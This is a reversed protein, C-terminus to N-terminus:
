TSAQARGRPHARGRHLRRPHPSRDAHKTCGGAGGVRCRCRRARDSDAGRATRMLTDGPTPRSRDHHVAGDVDAHAGAGARGRRRRAGRGREGHRRHDGAGQPTPRAEAETMGEHVIVTRVEPPPPTLNPPPEHLKREAAAEAERGAEAKEAISISASSKKSRPSASSSRRSARARRAARASLPAAGRRCRAAAAPGAAGVLHQLAAGARALAPVVRPVQRVGGPLRRDRLRRRGAKYANRAEEDQRADAGATAAFTSWCSSSSPSRLHHHRMAIAMMSRTARYTNDQFICRRQWGGPPTTLRAPSAPATPRLPGARVARRGPWPSNPRRATIAALSSGASCRGCRDSLLARRRARRNPRLARRGRLPELRALAVGLTWWALAAAVALALGWRSWLAFHSALLAEACDHLHEQAM